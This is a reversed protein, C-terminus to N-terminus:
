TPQKKPRTQKKPVSQVIHGLSRESLITRHIFIEIARLLTKFQPLTPSWGRHAAGNGAEIVAELNEAEADGIHGGQKLQNVKEKLSLGPQIELLEITRDFAIRLGISALILSNKEQASYVEDMIQHLKLDIPILDWIWDPKQEPEEQTPFTTIKTNYRITEQGDVIEYDYDGSYYATIHHFVTECGRCELLRYHEGGHECAEDHYWNKHIYGHEFCKREGNCRPCLAQIVRMESM